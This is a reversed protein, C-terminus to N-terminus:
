KFAISLLGELEVSNDPTHVLNRSYYRYQKDSFRTEPDIRKRLIVQILDQYLDEDGVLPLLDRISGHTIRGEFLREDARDSIRPGKISNILKFLEGQSLPAEIVVVIIDGGALYEKADDLDRGRLLPYLIEVEDETLGNVRKEIIIKGKFANIGSRVKEMIVEVQQRQLADPKLLIGGYSKGNELNDQTEIHKDIDKGLIRGGKCLPYITSKGSSYLTVSTHDPSIWQDDAIRPFPMHDEIGNPMMVDDPRLHFVSEPFARVELFHGPINKVFTHNIRDVFNPLESRLRAEFQNKFEEAMWPADQGNAYAFDSPYLEKNKYYDRFVVEKKKLWQLSGRAITGSALEELLAMGGIEIKHQACVSRKTDKLCLWIDFDSHRSPETKRRSPNRISEYATGLLGMRRQRYFEKPTDISQVLSGVAIAGIIDKFRESVLCVEERFTNWESSSMTHRLNMTDLDRETMQM